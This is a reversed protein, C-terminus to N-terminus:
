QRNRRRQVVFISAAGAVLLSAGVGAILGTHSGGGTNAMRLGDTALSQTQTSVAHSGGGTNAMRPGDTALSRTSTATGTTAPADRHASTFAIHEVAGLDCRSVNRAAGRQDSAECGSGAKLAPSTAAPMMTLTPGGNAAPAALLPDKAIASPICEKSDPSTTLWQIVNSGTGTSSCTMGMGWPNHAANGSFITNNLVYNSGFLAGGQGAATNNAFTVNNDHHGDGFIAGGYAKSSNNYFTSNSITCTPSCDLYFGGGNGGSTNSLISSDRVTISGARGPVPGVSIRAGGGLGGSNRGNPNIRNDAFTTREIIVKDPAYTWLYAGGGNGYATNHNITSGCIHIVGNPAGQDAAAGDTGIAGGDGLGGTTTTHNDTFTSNIVTLPSLLSYVAGGYWASNGKFVSGTISLSGGAGGAVAGGGQGASNNEFTSAIVEVHSRFGGAVAGGGGIRRDLTKAASGNIFRLNRVSLTTGNQSVLIRSTGGGDLTVKGAGDIVTTKPVPIEHTVKITVKGSGCNFRVLGGAAVAARLAGETCSADTGNGIVTGSAPVPLPTPADCDAAAASATSGTTLVTACMALAAVLLRAIPTFKM